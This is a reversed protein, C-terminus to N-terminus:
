VLCLSSTYRNRCNARNVFHSLLKSVLCCSVNGKSANSLEGEIKQRCVMMLWNTIQDKRAQQYGYSSM